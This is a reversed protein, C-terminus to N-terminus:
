NERAGGKGGRIRFVGIRVEDNDPPEIYEVLEADVGLDQLVYAFDEVWDRIGCTECFSGRFVVKVTDKGVELIEAVAEPARYRNYLEVARRLVYRRSSM